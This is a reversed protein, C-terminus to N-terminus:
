LVPSKQGKQSDKYKEKEREKIIACNAAVSGCDNMHGHIIELTRVEQSYLFANCINFFALFVYFKKVNFNNAKHSSLNIAPLTVPALLLCLFSIESLITFDAM